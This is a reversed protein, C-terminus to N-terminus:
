GTKAKRAIGSEATASFSEATEVACKRTLGYQKLKQYYTRESMGLRAATERRTGTNAKLSEELLRCEISRLAEEVTTQGARIANWLVAAAHDIACDDKSQQKDEGDGQARWDELNLAHGSTKQVLMRRVAHELERINGEFRRSGLYSCLDPDIGEILSYLTKNKQALAMLLVPLDGARERLPPLELHVVHLRYYLDLRFASKSVLHKLSQNSAAIIRVDVSTEQDAGVPRVMGRQLVDLLKAQLASSLDNIDDLFLTGHHAARFLGKRDSHAGSFAGRQHGFLESEALNEQITACHLTLFPFNKRKPDINHIAEAIVRKGTGSEGEILVTVDSAQAAKWAQRLAPLMRESCGAIGHKGFLVRLDDDSTQGLTQNPFPREGSM